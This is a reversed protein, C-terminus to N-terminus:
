LRLRLFVSGLRQIIEVVDICVQFLSDAAIIAELHERGDTTQNAYTVYYIAEQDLRDKSEESGPIMTKLVVKVFDYPRM